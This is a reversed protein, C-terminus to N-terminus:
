PPLFEGAANRCFMQTKSANSITEPYKCGRKVIVKKKGLNDTINTEDYKWIHTPPVDKIDKALNNIFSRLASEDVTARTGQVNETFAFTYLTKESNQQGLRM